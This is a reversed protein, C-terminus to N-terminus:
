SPDVKTSEGSLFYLAEPSFEINIADPASETILDPTPKSVLQDKPYDLTPCDCM